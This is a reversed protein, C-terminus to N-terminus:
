GGGLSELLRLTELVYFKALVRSQLCDGVWVPRM